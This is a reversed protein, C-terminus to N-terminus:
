HMLVKGQSFGLSIGLYQYSIYKYNERMQYPILVSGGPPKSIQVHM